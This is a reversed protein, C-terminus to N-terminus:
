RQRNMLAKHAKLCEPIDHFLRPRFHGYVTLISNGYDSYYRECYEYTNHKIEACENIAAKRLPKLKVERAEECTRELRKIDESVECYAEASFLTFLAIFCYKQM